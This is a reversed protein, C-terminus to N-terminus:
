VGSGEMSGTLKRLEMDYLFCTVVRDDHDRWSTESPVMWGIELRSTEYARDVFPEFADYCATRAFADLAEVGPWGAGEFTRLAYVENDHPESCARSPVSEIEENMSEPGDIDDFCDGVGLELASTQGWNAFIGGIVLLAFVAQFIRQM